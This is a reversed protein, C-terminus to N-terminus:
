NNNGAQLRLGGKSQLGGQVANKVPAFRRGGGVFSGIDGQKQATFFCTSPVPGTPEERSKSVPAPAAVCGNIAVNVQLQARRENHGALASREDAPLTQLSPTAWCETSDCM